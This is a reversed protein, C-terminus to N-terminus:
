KQEMAKLAARVHQIAPVVHSDWERILDDSDIQAEFEPLRDLLFKTAAELKEILTMEKEGAWGVAL